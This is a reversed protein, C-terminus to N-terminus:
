FADLEKNLLRDREEALNKEDQETSKMDYNIGLYETVALSKERLSLWIVGVDPMTQYRFNM